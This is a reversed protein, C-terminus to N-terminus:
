NVSKKDNSFIISSDLDINEYDNQVMIESKSFIGGMSNLIQEATHKEMYSKFIVQIGKSQMYSIFQVYPIWPKISKMYKNVKSSCESKVFSIENEDYKTAMHHNVLNSIGNEPSTNVIHKYDENSLKIPNM